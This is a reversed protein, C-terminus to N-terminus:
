RLSAGHTEDPGKKQADCNKQGRQDKGDKGRRGLGCLKAFL